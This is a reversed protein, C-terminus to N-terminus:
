DIRIHAANIVARWKVTERGVFDAFDLPTGPRPEVALRALLAHVDPANLSENAAANLKDIIATPTGAPAVLGTFSLTVFDALGSEIMTPLEPSAPNRTEGTSALARVKGARALPLTISPNEFVMQVQGGAVDGLSQGGGKYPVHVLDTGTRLKFLEGILHPPTGIGPSAFSLKGPQAKALAIFEQVTKAPVGPNVAMISATVGFGAIPAFAGLPDYGASKYVAPAIVLTSTNALMLTYGDPEAQAAARAGITGGAGPRNEVVFNQGLIAGMRQGAMRAMVDGPGGPSFPVIVKIPKAPFAQARAPAAAFGAAAATALLARRSIM